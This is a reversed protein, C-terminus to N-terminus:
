QAESETMIACIQLFNEYQAVYKGIAGNRFHQETIEAILSAAGCPLFLFM